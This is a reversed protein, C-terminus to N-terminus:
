TNLISKMLSIVKDVAIELSYRAWADQVAAESLRLRHSTDLVLRSLLIKYREFDYPPVLYGTLGDKIIYPAEGADDAVPVAGVAMYQVIKFSGGGPRGIWPSLGIDFQNLTTVIQQENAWNLHPILHSKLGIQSEAFLSEIKSDGGTGVCYFCCRSKVSTPLAALVQATRQLAESYAPGTGLWGITVVGRSRSSRKQRRYFRDDICTPLYTVPKDMARFTELLHHSAVTVHDAHALIWRIIPHYLDAPDDVDYILKAGQWKLHAMLWLHERRRDGRQCFVFQCGTRLGLLYDRLVYWGRQFKHPRAHSLNAPSTYRVKWGHKRLREGIAYARYRSSGLQRDGKPIILINPTM